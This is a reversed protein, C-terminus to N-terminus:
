VRTNIDVCCIEIPKKEWSRQYAFCVRTNQSKQRISFPFIMIGPAGVLNAKPAMFQPKEPKLIRKDYSVIQWQYGTTPNAQLRVSVQKNDYVVQPDTSSFAISNCALCFFIIFVFWKPM